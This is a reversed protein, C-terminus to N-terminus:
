SPRLGKELAQREKNKKGSEELLKELEQRKEDKDTFTEEMIKGMYFNVIRPDRDEVHYKLYQRFDQELTPETM